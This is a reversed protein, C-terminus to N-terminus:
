FDSVVGDAEGVVPFVGGGFLCFGLGEPCFEEGDEAYVAAGDGGEFFFYFVEFACLVADIDEVGSDHEAFV